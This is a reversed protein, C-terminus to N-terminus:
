AVAGEDMDRKLGETPTANVRDLTWILHLRSRPAQRAVEVLDGSALLAVIAARKRDKRGTVMDMLQERSLPATAKQAAGVLQNELAAKAKTEKEVDRAARVESATKPDGDCSWLGTRGFYSMMRVTDGTDSMRGKGISVEVARSGDARTEGRKGIALTVTAFREIAASEAGLSASEAGIKEGQAAADSSARSMQSVALAVFRHERACDDIREFADAVRLRVEREKSHILQAYDIAALVPEGPHATAVHAALRGLNEITANKRDLVYLRPLNLADAMHEFPVQGRLAQEWSADCRIGVIRAALEDAPLEISLAIAPGADKAHQLLMNSVLSSKGSGSGGIVVAIGGARVRCLEESRVKLSVWPDDKRKWIEGVLEPACFWPVRATSPPVANASSRVSNHWASPVDDRDRAAFADVDADRYSADQYLVEPPPERDTLRQASGNTGSAFRTERDRYATDLHLRLERWTKFCSEHQCGASPAGDHDCTIYAEGRDHSDNFPCVPIIWRRGSDWAREKADPLYTAIWEDLDFRTGDRRTYRDGTAVPAGHDRERRQPAADTPAVAELQERSVEVLKDPAEIIRALRHPREPTDEGKCTLTGYIKSIRAPNFVKEDVKLAQSSYKKSMAALVRKVLGGDDVPLDVAYILHGGNGSDALLPDPWGAARLEDRIKTTLALAAAHEDQSSSIGTPRVPDVDILISRRQRVDRDSTTDGGGARRVKNKAARALLAPNVPNLTVYVGTDQGSRQVAARALADLDDFYGSTIYSAGAQKSLGRLEYVDGPRALLAIMRMADDISHRDAM